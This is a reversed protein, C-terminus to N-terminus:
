PFLRGGLTGQAERARAALELVYVLDPLAAEAFNLGSERITAALATRTEDDARSTYALKDVVTDPLTDALQMVKSVEDRSVGADLATKVQSTLAASIAGLARAAQAQADTWRHEGACAAVVPTLAEDLVDMNYTSERASLALAAIHEGGDESKLIGNFVCNIQGMQAESYFSEQASAAQQALALLAAGTVFAFSRLM